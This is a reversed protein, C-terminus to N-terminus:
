NTGIDESEDLIVSDHCISKRKGKRRKVTGEKTSREEKKKEVDKNLRKKVPVKM